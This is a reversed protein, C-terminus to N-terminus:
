PEEVEDQDETWPVFYREREPVPQCYCGIWEREAERLWAPPGMEKPKWRGVLVPNADSFRFYFFEVDRCGSECGGNAFKFLYTYGAWDDYGVFIEPGDWETDFLAHASVVGPLEAYLDAALCPNFVGAFRLVAGGRRAPALLVLDFEANLADWEHYADNAFESAALRDFQVLIEGTWRTGGRTRVLADFGYATRIATLDSIIADILEPEPHVADSVCMALDEAEEVTVLSYDLVPPAAAEEEYPACSTLVLAATACLINRFVPSM